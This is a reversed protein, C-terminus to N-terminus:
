RASAALATLNAASIVIHVAVAGLRGSFDNETTAVLTGHAARAGGIRLRGVGNTITGTLTMGPVYSFNHFRVSTSQTTSSTHLRAYGGYLGGLGDTYSPNYNGILTEFLSESLERSSWGLTLEFARATRGALGGVERLPNLAALGAPAAPAPQLYSPMAIPACTTKITAQTLFADVANKACPGFETTLV